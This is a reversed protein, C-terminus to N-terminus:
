AGSERRDVREELRILRRHIISVQETLQAVDKRTGANAERVRETAAMNVGIDDRIGTLMDQQRDLRAMVEVRLRTIEEGMSATRQDLHGIREDMQGIRQDMRGIGEDMQSIREGLQAIASLVPDTGSM